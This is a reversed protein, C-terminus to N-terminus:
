RLEEQLQLPQHDGAEIPEGTRDNESQDYVLRDPERDIFRCFLFTQVDDLVTLSGVAKCSLVGSDKVLSTTEEDIWQTGDADTEWQTIRSMAEVSGPAEMFKFWDIRAFAVHCALQGLTRM